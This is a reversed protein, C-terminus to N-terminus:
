ESLFCCCLWSEDPEIEVFPGAPTATSELPLVTANGSLVPNVYVEIECFAESGDAHYAMAEMQQPLYLTRNTKTQGDLKARPTLIGILNYEDDVHLHFQIDEVGTLPTAPAKDVIITTSNVIELVVTGMQLTCVAM